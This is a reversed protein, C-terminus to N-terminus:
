SKIKIKEINKEMILCKGKMQGLRSFKSFFNFIFFYNKLKIM